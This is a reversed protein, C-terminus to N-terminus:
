VIKSGKEHKVLCVSLVTPYRRRSVPSFSILTNSTTRAPNTTGVSTAMAATAAGVGKIGGGKIRPGKVAVGIIRPGKVALRVESAVALM